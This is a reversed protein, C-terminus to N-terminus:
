QHLYLIPPIEHLDSPSSDNLLGLGQKVDRNRKQILLRLVFIINGYSILHQTLTAARLWGFPTLGCIIPRLSRTTYIKM